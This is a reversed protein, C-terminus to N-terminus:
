EQKEISELSYGLQEVKQRLVDTDLHDGAVRALGRKLDVEAWKVGDTESLARHVSRACHDCTMGSITLTITPGKKASVANQGARRDPWWIGRALLALLILAGVTKIYGPLMVPMRTVTETGQLEFIYDLFFGAALASIAVTLLYILATRRGMIKWITSIAAANTAPGTMLFVLVAGPSVGKAILAAAVPVSATACVYVPIGLLMMVLMAIIGGGLVGSLYDAPVFASIMGAILLGVLMAKGIDRPLTLFGYRLGRQIRTGRSGPLCCEGQCSAGISETKASTDFLSTLSGGLLGTFFAALPRFIAFVPGLLSFTVMISDVGTQPTSLLFATTAGRSAGHQRLSAAVPIVGCSCLPLPIGFVTAKVIPWVGRGGLHKEVTEASIFASLLGAALFGFLLYPAMESLIHWFDLFINFLITLM